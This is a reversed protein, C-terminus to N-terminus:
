LALFLEEELALLLRYAGTPRPPLVTGQVPCFYLSAIIMSVENM